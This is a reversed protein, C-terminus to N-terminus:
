APGPGAGRPGRGRRGVLRGARAAAPRARAVANISAPQVETARRLLSAAPALRKSRSEGAAATLLVRELLQRVQEEQPYRAYLQEAAQVDRTSLAGTGSLRRVLSEAEARDAAPVANPQFTIPQQVEPVTM